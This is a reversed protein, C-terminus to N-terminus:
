IALVEVFVNTKKKSRQTWKRNTKKRENMNQESARLLYVLARRLGDAM